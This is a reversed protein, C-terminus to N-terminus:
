HGAGFGAERALVIAESRSGVGLKDLLRSLHNRVTKNALGLEAAIRANDRGRAVLELVQRERETLGALGHDVAATKVELGALFSLVEARLVQWAPESALPLHSSSDLPVFRANPILGAIVRGAEFPVVADQRSHLILSPCTIRTASDAVDIEYCARLIRASMVPTTCAKMQTNLWGIQEPSGGPLFRASFVQRFAAHETGWGFEMLKALAEGLELEAQSAPRKHLGQSYAGGLILGAVKDPHRAAYEIAISAGQSLGVLVFRQLPTAQVVAEIDGVWAPLSTDSISRDSLGCGRLDHAIFEHGTSLLSVWHAWVPSAVESEIDNLWMCSKVIPLGQGGRSYAIRTGDAANCFRITRPATAM